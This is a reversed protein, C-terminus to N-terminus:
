EDEEDDEDDDDEDEDEDDEDDDDDDYDDDESDNEDDEDEQEYEETTEIEESTLDGESSSDRKELHSTMEDIKDNLFQGMESAMALTQAGDKVDPPTRIDGDGSCLAVCIVLILVSLFRKM